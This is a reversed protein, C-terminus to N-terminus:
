GNANQQIAQDVAEALAQPTTQGLVLSSTQRGLVTVTNADLEVDWVRAFEKVNAIDNLVDKYLQSVSDKLEPKISPIVHFDYFATQAYNAFFYKWFATLEPTLSDKRIAIGIGSNAFFDTAPVADSASETPMKFYGFQEKLQDNADLMSPLEWTGDYLMAAKGSTFLNVATTYDTNTSGAQFYPAIRQVFEAAKMGTSDAMKANGEALDKLFVNGTGRFPLMALYRFYPWQEKGAVAIPTIKADALKKLAAEFEAFTTPPAVGAREFLTKNYFFYETNANLTILNLTGDSWSPYQISIPYFKDTVGTQDYLVKIDAVMGQDVIQRFYPEPDADFLDTLENSSALIKVKQLYSPRDSVSQVDLDFDKGEPTSKYKQVVAEFAKLTADNSSRTTLYTYTHSHEGTSTPAPACATLSSGLLSFALVVGAARVSRSLKM